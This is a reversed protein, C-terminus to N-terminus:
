VWEVSKYLCFFLLRVSISWTAVTSLTVLGTVCTASTATFLADTYSVSQGSKTSIPLALLLSGLLIVAAFGFLILQPPTMSIRFRKKM